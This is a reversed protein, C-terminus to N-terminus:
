KNKGTKQATNVNEASLKDHREEVHKKAGEQIETKKVSKKKKGEEKRKGKRKKREM